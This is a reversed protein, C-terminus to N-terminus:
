AHANGAFSGKSHLYLLLIEQEDMVSCSIWDCPSLLVFENAWQKPVRQQLPHAMTICFLGPPLLSQHLKHHRYKQVSLMDKPSLPQSRMWIYDLHDSSECGRDRQQRSGECVIRINKWHAQIGSPDTAAM